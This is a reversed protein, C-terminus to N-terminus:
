LCCLGFLEVTTATSARLDLSWNNLSGLPFSGVLFTDNSASFSLFGASVMVGSSCTPPSVSFAGAGLSTFGTTLSCTGTLARPAVAPQEPAIVLTRAGAVLDPNGRVDALSAHRVTV